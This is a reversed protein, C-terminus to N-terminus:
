VFDRNSMNIGPINGIVRAISSDSFLLSFFTLPLTM